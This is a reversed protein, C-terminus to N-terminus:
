PVEGPDGEDTDSTEDEQGGENKGNDGGGEVKKADVAAIYQGLDLLGEEKVGGLERLALLGQRVVNAYSIWNKGLISHLELNGAKLSDRRMIGAKRVYLGMLKGVGLAEIVSDILIIAEPSVKEGGYQAILEGRLRSLERMIAAFARGSPLAKHRVWTYLYHHGQAAPSKPANDKGM